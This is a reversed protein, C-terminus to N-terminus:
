NWISIEEIKESMSLGFYKKNRQQSKCCGLYNWFGSEHTVAEM